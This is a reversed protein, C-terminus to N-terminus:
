RLGTGGRRGAARGPERRGDLARPSRALTEGHARTRLRRGRRVLLMACASASAALCAASAFVFAGGREHYAWGWLLMGVVSGAGFATALLGQATGLANAPAREQACAVASLWMLGFSLAHFPQLALLVAPARLSALLVWRLSAGALAAALLSAHALGRFARSASAMLAVECATGIAWAVGVTGRSMGLDLLRLTFCLDYASHACQGLFAAALLIKFDRSALLMLVTRRDGQRPLGARGAVCLSALLTVFLAACTVVPFALVDRPDVFRAAMLVAAMFGLSGWLRLGGYSTGGARAGELASVDALLIMPARFVALGIAAALLTVFGLPAGLVAAVTLAGWSVLAGVCAAQLLGRRPGLADSIAGSAAPVLAGVAPAAAVVLGLRIGHMGRAELWRPFFPIYIGGVAFAAVYYIRLPLARSM